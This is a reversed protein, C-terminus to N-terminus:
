VYWVQANQEGVVWEGYRNPPKRVCDSRRTQPSFTSRSSESNRSLNDNISVNCYDSFSNTNSSNLPEVFSFTEHHLSPRSNDTNIHYFTESDGSRMYESSSNLHTNHNVGSTNVVNRNM